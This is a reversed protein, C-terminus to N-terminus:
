REFPFREDAVWTGDAQEVLLWAADVRFPLPLRPALEAEAARAIEDTSREPTAAGVTLHPVPKSFSRGYPACEPFRDCTVRVLDVFRERPVPVLWVHGDFRGIGDLRADFASRAAFHQRVVVRLTADVREADVFPFLLTVHAPIRTAVSEAAYTSRFSAVVPEAEPV